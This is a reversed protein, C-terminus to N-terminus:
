HGNAKPLLRFAITREKRMMCCLFAQHFFVTYPSDFPLIPKDRLSKAKGEDDRKFPFALPSDTKAWKGTISSAIVGCKGLIGEHPDSLTIVANALNQFLRGAM